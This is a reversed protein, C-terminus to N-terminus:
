CMFTCAATLRLEPGATHAQVAPHLITSLASECAVDALEEPSLGRYFSDQSLMVVCQLVFSSILATLASTQEAQLGAMITQPKHSCSCCPVQDHLRQMIDNCVTTKGSATGGARLLYAGICMLNVRSRLQCRLPDKPYDACMSHHGAQAKLNRVQLASSLRSHGAFIYM